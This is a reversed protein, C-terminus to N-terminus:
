PPDLRILQLAFLAFLSNGKLLLSSGRRQQRQDPANNKTQKNKRKEQRQVLISVHDRGPDPAEEGEPLFM